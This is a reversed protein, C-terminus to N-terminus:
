NVIGKTEKLMNQCQELIEEIKQIDIEIVPSYQFKERMEIIQDEKNKTTSKISEIYNKFDSDIKGEEALNEVLSLTCEQNRSEYGFKTIISLCCHYMIYFGINICWDYHGASKNTIFVDLNHEAKKIFEKALDNNPKIKVLGRHVNGKELEKKAKNICWKVHKESRSM